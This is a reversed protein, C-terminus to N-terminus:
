PAAGGSGGTAQPTPAAAPPTATPSVSPTATPSASPTASPTPTADPTAREGPTATAEPDTETPEEGTTTRTREASKSTSGGLLTTRRQGDGVSNGITLESATVFAAGILFAVLGTVLGLRVRRDALWSSRREPERLGFPDDREESGGLVRRAEEPAEPEHIATGGPTRRPAVVLPAVETIKQAPHKLVESVVAVAIPVMATFFLTGAKWFQSVAVTAVVASISSILLTQVSLGGGSEKKESTV